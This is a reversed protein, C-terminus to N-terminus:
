PTPTLPTQPLLQQYAAHTRVQVGTAANITIYQAVTLGDAAIAASSFWNRVTGSTDIQTSTYRVGDVFDSWKAPTGDQKNFPSNQNWRTNTVGIMFELGAVTYDGGTATHIEALRALSPLDDQSVGRITARLLNDSVRVGWNRVPRSMAGMLAAAWFLSYLQNDSEVGAQDKIKPTLDTTRVSVTAM